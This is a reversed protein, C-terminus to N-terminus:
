HALPVGLENRTAAADLRELFPAAELRVLIQRASTVAAHVEPESPDLLTAMEIATFAEEVLLGLDRLRRNTDRYLSLADATRAELAAIGALISSRHAGVAEGQIGTADLAVLDSAASGSDRQLLSSRAAM